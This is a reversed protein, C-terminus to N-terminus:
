LTPSSSLLLIITASTLLCFVFLGKEEPTFDKPMDHFVYDSIQLNLEWEGEDGYFYAMDFRNSKLRWIRLIGNRLEDNAVM